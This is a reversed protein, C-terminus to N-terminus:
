KTLSMLTIMGKRKRDRTINGKNKMAAEARSSRESPPSLLLNFSTRSPHFIILLFLADRKESISSSITETKMREM